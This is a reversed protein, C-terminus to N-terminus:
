EDRLVATTGMLGGDSLLVVMHGLARTVIESRGYSYGTGAAERLPPKHSFACLEGGSLQCINFNLDYVAQYARLLTKTAPDARANQIWPLDLNETCRLCIDFTSPGVQAYLHLPFIDKGLELEHILDLVLSKQYQIPKHLIIIFM